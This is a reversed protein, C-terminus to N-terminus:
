ISNLFCIENGATAISQRKVRKFKHSFNTESKLAIRKLEKNKSEKKFDDIASIPSQKPKSVFNNKKIELLIKL